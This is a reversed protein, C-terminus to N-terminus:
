KLPTPYPAPVIRPALPTVAVAPASTPTIRSAPPTPTKIPVGAAYEAASRPDTIHGTTPATGPQNAVATGARVVQELFAVRRDLSEVTIPLKADM